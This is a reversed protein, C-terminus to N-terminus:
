RAAVLEEVVEDPVKLDGRGTGISIEPKYTGHYDSGGTAVIGLDRCIGALHDRVDQPYESYHAEIGGLGQDALQSFATSYDNESVGLTHPHAIVPVAHSARALNIAETADLRARPEYAKRGQALYVDFAENFTDVHGKEILLAAFHPRGVGTGEAQALVEDYTIDIGLGQLREAIRRNRDTRSAQLWALKDQLPGPQPELFYVLMHMAGTDWEVSLETGPIFRIGHAAAAARAEEIGDLNDHDTLAVTTLGAGAAKRVLEAPTDSGDSRSSHTHLDVSM